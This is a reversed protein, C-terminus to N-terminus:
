TAAAPRAGRPYAGDITLRVMEDLFEEIGPQPRTAGEFMWDGFVAIAFVLGFILRTMVAPDFPRFGRDQIEREVIAEFRELLAGLQPAPATDTTLPGSAARAGIMEHILRRNASLVEYVGRYFEYMEVYPSKEGRPRAGWDAIYESVFTNFPALVAEEFLKAKSGFHRFIMPESVSAARAIARTSTGAYGREAFLARASELLLRKGEGRAVKQGDVIPKIPM